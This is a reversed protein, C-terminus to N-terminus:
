MVGKKEPQIDEQICSQTNWNNIKVNCKKEEPQMGEQICTQANWNRIKVNWKKEPQIGGSHLCTGELVKIKCEM